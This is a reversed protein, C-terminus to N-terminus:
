GFIPRTPRQLQRNRRADTLQSLDDPHIAATWRWDRSQDAALRQTASRIMTPITSLISRLGHESGAMSKQAGKQDDAPKRLM